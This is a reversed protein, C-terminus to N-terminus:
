AKVSGRWGEHIKMGEMTSLILENVLDSVDTHMPLLLFSLLSKAARPKLTQLWGAM